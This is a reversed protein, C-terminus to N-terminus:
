ICEGHPDSGDPSVPYRKVMEKVGSVQTEMNEPYQIFINYEVSEASAFIYRAWGVIGDDTRTEMELAKSVHGGRFRVETERFSTVKVFPQDDFQTRAAEAFDEYGICQFGAYTSIMFVSIVM